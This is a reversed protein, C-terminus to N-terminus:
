VLKRQRESDRIERNEVEEGTDLRTITVIGNEYDIKKVCKIDRMEYGNNIDRSARKSVLQQQEIEDKFGAMVAKKKEEADNAKITAQAMKMALDKLEKESFQYKLYENVETKVVKPLENTKAAENTKGMTKKEMTKKPHHRSQWPGMKM